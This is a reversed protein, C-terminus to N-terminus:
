GEQSGMPMGNLEIRHVNAFPDAGQNMPLFTYFPFHDFNEEDQRTITKPMDQVKDRPPANHSAQSCLSEDVYWWGRRMVLFHYVHNHPQWLRIHAQKFMSRKTEDGSLCRSHAAHMALKIRVDLKLQSIYRLSCRAFMIPEFICPVEIYSLVFDCLMSPVFNLPYETQLDRSIMVITMISTQERRSRSIIGFGHALLSRISFPAPLHQKSQPIYYESYVICGRLTFRFTVDYRYM